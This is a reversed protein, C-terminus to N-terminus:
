GVRREKAETYYDALGSAALPLLGGSLVGLPPWVFLLAFSYLSVLAVAWSRTQWRDGSRRKLAIVGGAGYGASLGLVPNVLGLPLALLLWVGMAKLVAAPARRHGSVFAVLVYILPVVAFGIAFAPTAADPTDSQSSVIAVLLSSYSVLTLLTGLGIAFWARKYNQDEPAAAGVLEADNAV